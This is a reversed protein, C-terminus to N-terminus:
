SFPRYFEATKFHKEARRFYDQKKEEQSKLLFKFELAQVLKCIKKHVFSRDNGARHIWFEANSVTQCLPNMKNTYIYYTVLLFLEPEQLLFCLLVRSVSILSHNNSQKSFFWYLHCSDTPLLIRFVNLALHHKNVQWDQNNM